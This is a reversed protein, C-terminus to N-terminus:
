VVRRLVKVWPVMMTGMPWEMSNVYFVGKALDGVYCSWPLQDKSKGVEVERVVCYDTRHRRFDEAVRKDSFVLLGYGKRKLWSPAVAKEGVRYRVRALGNVICSWYRGSKDKKLVKWARM